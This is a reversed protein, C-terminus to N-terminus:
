SNTDRNILSVLETKYLLAERGFMQPIDINKAEFYNTLAEPDTLNVVEEMEEDSLKDSLQALVRNEVTQMIKSRMENKEDESADKMGILDFIDENILADYDLPAGLASRLPFASEDVLSSNNTQNDDM